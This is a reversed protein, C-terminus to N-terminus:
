GRAPGHYDPAVYVAFREGNGRAYRRSYTVLARDRPREPAVDPRAPSVEEGVDGVAVPVTYEAPVSVRGYTRIPTVERRQNHWPGGLFLVLM